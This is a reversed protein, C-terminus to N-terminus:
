GIAKWKDAIFKVLDEIKSLNNQKMFSVLNIAHKRDIGAIPKRANSFDTKLGRISDSVYRDYILGYRIENARKSLQSKEKAMVLEIWPTIYGKHTSTYSRTKEQGSLVSVDGQKEPRKDLNRWADADTYFYVKIGRKKSVILLQRTRALVQPDATPNTFVYIANVGNIPINPEKSFLRDEAEHPKHHSQTPNRNLWYDVPKSPYHRNYYNGDLEFMVANNGIYEHYGGLKTRTTSLFYPYGKLSYLEESSGLSVTLEFKGSTVIQLAAVTNTYHYVIRSLSENIREKVQM